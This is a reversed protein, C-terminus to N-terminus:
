IHRNAIDLAKVVAEDPQDLIQETTKNIKLKAAHAAQMLREATMIASTRGGTARGVRGGSRRQDETLQEARGTQFAASPALPASEVVRAPMGGVYGLGYQTGGVVRPSHAAMAAITHPVGFMMGAGAGSSIGSLMGVLGKPFIPSLEMGAVMFPIDPDLEAIEKLLNKKLPDDKAGLIKRIAAADSKGSLLGERIEKLKRSQEAYQEMADMYKKGVDNPLSAIQDRVATAISEVAGKGTPTLRMEPDNRINRIAVKLNQFNQATPAIRENLKFENIKSEVRQLARIASDDLSTGELAVRGVASELAREVPEYSLPVTTLERMSNVFQANRKDAITSHAAEIRRVAEGPDASGMLHSLFVPNKELGAQAAKNLSSLSAGTTWWEPLSAAATVARTTQKAGQAALALPDLATGVAKAATGAKGIMGPAKAALTGGGTFPLSLDSMVGVPDESLARKFGEMSGYRDAYFRGLANIAAEDQEKQGADQTFGLAGKAKSVAGTGLAGLAEATEKPHMFPQIVSEGFQKLSPVFSEGAKSFTEGWTMPQAPERETDMFAPREESGAVQESPMAERLSGRAGLGIDPQMTERQPAVGGRPGIEIEPDAM